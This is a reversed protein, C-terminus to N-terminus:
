ILRHKWEMVLFFERGRTYLFRFKSFLDLVKKQPKEWQLFQQELIKETIVSRIEILNM